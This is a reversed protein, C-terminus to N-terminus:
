LSESLQTGGLLWDDRPQAEGGGGDAGGLREVEAEREGVRARELRRLHHLEVHVRARATGFPWGRGSISSRANAM